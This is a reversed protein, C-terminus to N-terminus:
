LLRYRGFVHSWTKTDKANLVFYIPSLVVGGFWQSLQLQQGMCGDKRKGKWINIWRDKYMYKPGMISSFDYLFWSCFSAHDEIRLIETFYMHYSVM